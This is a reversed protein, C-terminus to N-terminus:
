CNLHATKDNLLWVRYDFVESEDGNVDLSFKKPYKDQEDHKIDLFGSIHLFYSL